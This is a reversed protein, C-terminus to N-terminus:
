AYAIRLTADGGATSDRIFKINALKSAGTVDYSGGVNFFNGVTSTPSTGDYRWRVKAGEVQVFAYTADTPVSALSVVSTSVTLAENVDGTAM